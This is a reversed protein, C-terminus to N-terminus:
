KKKKQKEDSSEAEEKTVVNIGADVLANYLSDLSDSDMELGKLADALEEFTIFGKKQGLEILEAKREDFTKIEKVQKAM